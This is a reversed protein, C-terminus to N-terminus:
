WGGLVTTMFVSVLNVQANTLLDLGSIHQASKPIKNSDRKGLYALKTDSDYYSAQVTAGLVSDIFSGLLGCISAYLLTKVPKISLGSITDVLLIGLGIFFGGGLSWSTGWLTVGGNTGPPVSRFPPLILIPPSTALMGLESALTDALCTAHHAIIACTLKSPIPYQAFDITREDGYYYAHILSFVVALFSCAFVQSPGRISSELAAADRKQKKEKKYKTAM